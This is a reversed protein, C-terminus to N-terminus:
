DPTEAPQLSLNVTVVTNVTVTFEVSLAPDFGPASARLRYTGPRVSVFRFAGKPPQARAMHQQDDRLSDGNADLLWISADPAPQGSAADLVVGSVIGTTLSVPQVNSLERAVRCGGLAVVAAILLPLRPRIIPSHPIRVNV